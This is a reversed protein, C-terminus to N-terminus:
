MDIPISRGIVIKELNMTVDYAYLEVGQDRAERLMAGYHPDITDAPRFRRADMRQILYVMASRHGEAVLRQLEELHKAGRATPADPFQALGDEVLTCNKVEVYCDRRGKARLRMDLRTKANLTVEPKIDDYGTLGQICNRAIGLAVLLNPIRTNVGILSTPMRILEWTYKLKRRPNNSESLYVTRHPEACTRMAGTNPCHATVVKGGKLEVDAKFRQYRQILRGEVLPPWSYGAETQLPCPGSIPKSIM